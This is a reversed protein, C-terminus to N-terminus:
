GVKKDIPLHLYSGLECNWSEPTIKEFGAADFFTLEGFYLKGDVHYVDVRIYYEFDSALKKVISTLEDPVQPKQYDKLLELGVNMSYIPDLPLYDENLFRHRKQGDLGYEYFSILKIEGGFCHFKYEHLAYKDSSSQLFQEVIIRPQVRKYPWERNSWFLNRGNLRRRYFLRMEEWNINKKDQIIRYSSNDHNCKIVFPKDPLNEPKIDKWDQTEFYLPILYKDTGLKKAVYERVKFKDVCDSYWPKRNYLKLWQLKESFTQLNNWDLRYGMLKHFKREIAIKDPIIYFFFFNYMLRAPYCLYYTFISKRYFRKIREIVSM